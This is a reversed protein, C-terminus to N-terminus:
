SSRRCIGLFCSTWFSWSPYIYIRKANCLYTFACILNYIYYICWTIYSSTHFIASYICTCPHVYDSVYTRNNYSKQYLSQDYPNEKTTIAILILYHKFSLNDVWFSPFLQCHLFEMLKIRHNIASYTCSLIIVRLLM